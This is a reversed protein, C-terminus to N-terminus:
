SFTVLFYSLEIIFILFMVTAKMDNKKVSSWRQSRVVILCCFVLVLHLDTLYQTHTHTHYMAYFFSGWDRATKNRRDGAIKKEM